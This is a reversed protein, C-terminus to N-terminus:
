IYEVEVDSSVSKAGFIKTISSVRYKDEDHFVGYWFTTRIEGTEPDVQKSESTFPTTKVVEEAEESSSALKSSVVVSKNNGPEFGSFHGKDSATKKFILM